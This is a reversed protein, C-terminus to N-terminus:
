FIVNGFFFTRFSGWFNELIEEGKILNCDLFLVIVFLFFLYYFYLARWFIFIGLYFIRFWYSEFKKINMGFIWISFNKSRFIFCKGFTKLRRIWKRLFMIYFWREKLYVKFFVKRFLWLNICIFSLFFINRGM